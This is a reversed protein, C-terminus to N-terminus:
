GAASWWCTCCDTRRGRRPVAVRPRSHVGPLRHGFAKSRAPLVLVYLAARVGGPGPLDYVVGPCDLLGSLARCRTGAVQVVRRSSPYGASSTTKSITSGPEGAALFCRIAEDIAQQESPNQSGNGLWVAAVIAAAATLSVAIAQMWRRSALRAARVCFPITGNEPGSTSQVARDAALRALLREALADPVPVDQFAAVWRAEAPENM